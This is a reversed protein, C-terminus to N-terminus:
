EFRFWRRAALTGVVGWVLLVIMAKVDWGDALSARMADGLAGSPLYGVVTGWEGAGPLVLGGAGAMLVWVLNAAGLTAEARLTGAMLLGLSLLAATGLVTAVILPVVHIPGAFGLGCAIAFALAFQLVVVGIVAGLKGLILGTTGLPTTALQALVGYRRDFATAIAQGTFATSALCLGLTGPLAISLRDGGAPIAGLAELLPTTSLFVLLGLPLILALLLQEGNRLVALTEFRAQSLVRRTRMGPSTPVTVTSM